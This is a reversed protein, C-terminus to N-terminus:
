RVTLDQGITEGRWEPTYYSYAQSPAGKARVPYQAQVDFSVNLAEGATMDEIYLIVKRAAVDYRKIKPDAAVLADVGRRYKRVYDRLAALAVDLGM